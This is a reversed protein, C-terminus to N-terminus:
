GKQMRGQLNILINGVGDWVSLCSYVCVRKCVCAGVHLKNTHDKNAINSIMAPNIMLNHSTQNMPQLICSVGNLLPIKNLGEHKYINNTNQGTTNWVDSMLLEATIEACKTYVSSIAYGNRLPYKIM